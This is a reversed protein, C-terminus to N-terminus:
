ILEATTGAILGFIFSIIVIATYVATMFGGIIAIKLIVNLDKFRVKNEM